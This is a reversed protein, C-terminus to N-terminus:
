NKKLSFLSLVIAREQHVKIVFIPNSTLINQAKQRKKAWSILSLLKSHFIKKTFYRIAVTRAGSVISFSEWSFYLIYLKNLRMCFNVAKNNACQNPPAAAQQNLMHHHLDQTPFILQPAHSTASHRQYPDWVTYVILSTLSLRNMFRCVNGSIARALKQTFARSVYLLQLFSHPFRHLSLFFFHFSNYYLHIACYIYTSQEYRCSFQISHLVVPFIGHFSVCLDLFLM